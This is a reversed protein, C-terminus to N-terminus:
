QPPRKEAGGMSASSSSGRHHSEKHPAPAPPKPAPFEMERADAMTVHFKWREWNARYAGMDSIQITFHSVVRQGTPASAGSSLAVDEVGTGAVSNAHTITGVPFRNLQHDILEASAVPQPDLLTVQVVNPKDPVFSSQLPALPDSPPAPPDVCAGPLLFASLLLVRAARLPL